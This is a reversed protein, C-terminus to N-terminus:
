IFRKYQFNNIQIQNKQEDRATLLKLQVNIIRIM